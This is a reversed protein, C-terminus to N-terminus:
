WHYSLRLSTSSPLLGVTSIQSNIETAILEIFWNDRPSYNLSVATTSIDGPMGLGLYLTTGLADHLFSKSWRATLQQLNKEVGAPAAPALVRVSYSGEIALTYSGNASYEWGLGLEYQDLKEGLADIPKIGQKISLEQKFQHNGGTYSHGYGFMGYRPYHTTYEPTPLALNVALIEPDNQLLSALLWQHEHAGSSWSRRLVTESQEFADPLGNTLHFNSSGLMQTLLAEETGAPYRNSDPGLNLYLDWQGQKAFYSWAVIPQGIRADEPSTFAAESYDTPTLINNLGLMDMMGLSVIQYGVQLSSRSLSRQLYLANLKLEPEIGSTLSNQQDDVAFLRAKSDLVLYNNEGLLGEWQVHWSLRNINVSGGRSEWGKDYALTNRWPSRAVTQDKEPEIGSAADFGSGADFDPMVFPSAPEAALVPGSSGLLLLLCIFGDRLM